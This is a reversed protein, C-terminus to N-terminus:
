LTESLRGGSWMLMLCFLRIETPVQRVARRFRRREPANLYKRGGSPGHLSMGASPHQRMRGKPERQPGLGPFRIALLTAALFGKASLSNRRAIFTMASKLIM